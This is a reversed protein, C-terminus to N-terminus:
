WSTQYFNLGKILSWMIFYPLYIDLIFSRLPTLPWIKGYICEGIGLRIWQMLDEEHMAESSRPGLQSKRWYLSCHCVWGSDSHVWSGGPDVQCHDAECKNREHQTKQTVLPGNPHLQSCKTIANTFGLFNHSNVYLPISSVWHMFNGRQERRHTYWSISNIHNTPCCNLSIWKM